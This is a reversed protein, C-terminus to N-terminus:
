FDTEYSQGAGFRFLKIKRDKLSLTVSTWSDETVSGLTREPYDEVERESFGWLQPVYATQSAVVFFNIGHANFMCDGHYHGIFWGVVDFGHIEKARLVAELLPTLEKDYLNIPSNHSIFIVAKDTNLATKELWEIQSPLVKYIKKYKGQATYEYTFSCVSVIRLEGFDEFYYPARGTASEWLSDTAIDEAHYDTYGDHNGQTPFFAGRIASAFVEAQEKLLKRTYELPLNGNLFDGLHLLFDYGLEKDTASINAITNPISNDLHTDAVVAFRYDCVENKSLKVIREAEKKYYM